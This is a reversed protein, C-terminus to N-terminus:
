EVQIGPPIPTPEPPALKDPGYQSIDRMEPPVTDERALYDAIEADKMQGEMSLQRPQEPEM